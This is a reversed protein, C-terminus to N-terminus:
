KNPRAGAAKIASKYKQILEDCKEPTGSCPLKYGLGAMVRSLTTKQGKFICGIAYRGEVLVRNVGDARVPTSACFKYIIPMKYGAAVWATALNKLSTGNYASILTEGSPDYGRLGKGVKTAVKKNNGKAVKTAVKKNANKRM